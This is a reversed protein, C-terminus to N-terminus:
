FGAFCKRGDEQFIAIEGFEAEGSRWENLFGWESWKWVALYRGRCISDGYDGEITILEDNGDEDVDDVLIRCNPASLNSSQWVPKMKGGILDFIFFHNKVSMDNEEVWFPQMDGFNGPKWVSLNLDELGDNNSDALLFSDVQWAEDSKWIVQSDRSVTLVGSELVYKELAGDGDLDAEETIIMEATHSNFYNELRGEDIKEYVGSGDNWCFAQFEKSPIEPEAFNQSKIRHYQFVLVALAILCSASLFIITRGIKM